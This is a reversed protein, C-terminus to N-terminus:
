KYSKYLRYNDYIYIVAMVPSYFLSAVLVILLLEAIDPHVKLGFVLLLSIWVPLILIGYITYLVSKKGPQFARILFSVFQPIGVVFYFAGGFAGISEIIIGAVLIVLQIYFDYKAFTKM